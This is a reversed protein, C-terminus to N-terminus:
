LNCTKPRPMTRLIKGVKALLNNIKDVAAVWTNTNGM